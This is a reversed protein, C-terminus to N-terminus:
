GQLARELPKTDLSLPIFCPQAAAPLAKKYAVLSSSLVEIVGVVIKLDQEIRKSRSEMGHVSWVDLM